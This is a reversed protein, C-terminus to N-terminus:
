ARSRRTKYYLFEEIAEEDYYKNLTEWGVLERTEGEKNKVKMLGAKEAMVLLYDMRRHQLKCLGTVNRPIIKGKTDVFQHLVLVDTHKIHLGLKCLSCSCPDNNLTTTQPLLRNARPSAIYQGEVIIANGEERRLIQKLACMPSTSFQHMQPSLVLLTSRRFLSSFLLM